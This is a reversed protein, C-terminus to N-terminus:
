VVSTYPPPEDDTSILAHTAMDSPTLTSPIVRAIYNTVTNTQLKLLVLICLFAVLFAIFTVLSGMLILGARSNWFGTLQGLVSRMIRDEHDMNDNLFTWVERNVTM